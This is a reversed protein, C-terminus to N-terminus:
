PLMCDILSSLYHIHLCIFLTIEPLLPHHSSLIFYCGGGGHYHSSYIPHSLLAITCQITLPPLQSPSLQASVQVIPLLCDYLLTPAINWASFFSPLLTGSTFLTTPKLNLFFTPMAALILVSTFPHALPHCVETFSWITVPKPKIPCM